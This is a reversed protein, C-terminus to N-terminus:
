GKIVALPELRAVIRALGAAEVVAVVRDVNKYAQPAEEALGALSGARVAIGNLELENRLQEGRVQRKADSRSMMRGAGHCCSGFSHEAANDMGATGVLVYSATGMSGPVLVPQGM